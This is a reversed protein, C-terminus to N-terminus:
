KYMRVRKSFTCVQRYIAINLFILLFLPIIGHVILNSYILYVQFCIKLYVRSINSRSSNLSSNLNLSGNLKLQVKPKTGEAGLGLMLVHHLQHMYMHHM